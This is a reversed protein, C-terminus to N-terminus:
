RSIGPHGKCDIQIFDPRVKKIFTDVMENMLSRGADIIDEKAHLDFHVGFFSEERRLKRPNQAFADLTFLVAITILTKQLILKNM